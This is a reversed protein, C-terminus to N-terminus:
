ERATLAAATTAVRAPPQPAEDRETWYPALRGALAHQVETELQAVPIEGRATGVALGLGTLMALGVAIGTHRFLRNPQLRWAGTFLFALAALPFLLLLTVAGPHLFWPLSQPLLSPGGSLYHSPDSGPLIRWVFFSLGYLGTILLAFLPLTRGRKALAAGGLVLVLALHLLILPPVLQHASEGFVRLAPAGPPNGLVSGVVLGTFMALGLSTAGLFRMRRTLLITLLVFAGTTALAYLGMHNGWSEHVTKGLLAGMALVGVLGVGVERRKPLAALRASTRDRLKFPDQPDFGGVGIRHGCRPCSTTSGPKNLFTNFRAPCAPCIVPRLGARAQVEYIEGADLLQREFLLRDMTLPQGIDARLRLIRLSEDVHQKETFGLEVALKGIRRDESNSM